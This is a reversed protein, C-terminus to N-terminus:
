LYYPFLTGFYFPSSATPKRRHDALQVITMITNTYSHTLPFCTTCTYINRKGSPFGECATSDIFISCRNLYYTVILKNYLVHWSVMCVDKIKSSQWIVDYHIQMKTNYVQMYIYIHPTWSCICTQLICYKSMCWLHHM